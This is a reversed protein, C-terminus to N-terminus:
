EKVLSAVQELLRVIYLGRPLTSVDIRGASISERPFPVQQGSANFIMLENALEPELGSIYVVDQTPNPYLSLGPVRDMVVAEVNSYTFTADLDVQKMRYYNTGLVPARDMFDYTTTAQTTGAGDVTGISFFDIGNASRQLEFHDNNSESATTWDLEVMSTGSPRATFALLEVPLPSSNAVSAITIYRTSNAPIMSTAIGGITVVGGVYTFTLGSATGYMTANTFNGDDDVLLRLDSATIPTTNLKFGMSFTGTFATNTVKWERGIRSFIGQGGPIEAATSFGSRMRGGDHGVVVSQLDTSFSSGNGVNTTALAGIFVRTSDDPQRSQKQNFGQNDDRMVGIVGNTYTGSNAYITTGATNFYDHSFLRASYKLALYSEIRQHIAQSVTGTYLFMEALEGTFPYNMADTAVLRNDGVQTPFNGHVIPTHTTTAPGAAGNCFAQILNTEGGGYIGTNDSKVAVINTRAAPLQASTNPSVRNSTSAVDCDFVAAGGWNMSLSLRTFGNSGSTILLWDFDAADYDYYVAYLNMRNYSAGSVLIGPAARQLYDNTFKVSPNYNFYASASGDLWTPRDASTAQSLHFANGTQDNWQRVLSNNACSVLPGTGSYANADAKYWARLNTSYGGPTQAKASLVYALSAFLFFKRPM